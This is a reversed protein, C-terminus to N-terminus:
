AYPQYLVHTTLIHRFNSTISSTPGKLKSSSGRTTFSWQVHQASRFRIDEFM